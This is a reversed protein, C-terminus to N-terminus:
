RFEFYHFFYNPLLTKGRARRRECVFLLIWNQYTVCFSHCLSSLSSIFNCFTFLFRSLLFPLLGRGTYVIFPKDRWGAQCSLGITVGQRAQYPPGQRPGHIFRDRTWGVMAGAIAGATNARGFSNTPTTINNFYQIFIILFLFFGCLSGSVHMLFCSRGILIPM